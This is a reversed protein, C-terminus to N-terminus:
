VGELVELRREIEEYEMFKSVNDIISMAANLRVRENEAKLLKRIVAVAESTCLKLDRLAMSVIERQQRELEGKFNPDKLWEYFTTRSIRASKVGEVISKSELIKTITKLQKETLNHENNDM